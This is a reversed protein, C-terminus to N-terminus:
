ATMLFALLILGVGIWLIADLARRMDRPLSARTKTFDVTLDVISSALWITALPGIAYWWLSFRVFRDALIGSIDTIYASAFNPVYILGYLAAWFALAGLGKMGVGLWSWDQAKVVIIISVLVGLM